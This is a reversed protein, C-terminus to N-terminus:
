RSNTSEYYRVSYTPASFSRAKGSLSIIAQKFADTLEARDNANVFAGNGKTAIDNLYISAPSSTPLALGVTYTAVTQDGDIGSNLDENALYEALEPGCRGDDSGSDCGNAYTGIMSTVLSASQNETPFGDSLLIIGNKACEEVIPSNYIANGAVSITTKVNDPCEPVLKWQFTVPTPIRLM